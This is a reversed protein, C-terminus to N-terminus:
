KTTDHRINGFLEPLKPTLWDWFEALDMGSWEESGRLLGALFEWLARMHHRDYVKTTEMEELYSEIIPRTGEFV